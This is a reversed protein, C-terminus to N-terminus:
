GGVFDFRYLLTRLFNASARGMLFNGAINAAGTLCHKPICLTTEFYLKLKHM